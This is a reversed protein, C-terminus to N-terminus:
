QLRSSQEERTGLADKERKGWRGILGVVLGILLLLFFVSGFVILDPLQSASLTLRVLGRRVSPVNRGTVSNSTLCNSRYTQTDNFAARRFCILM